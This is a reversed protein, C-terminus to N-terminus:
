PSPYSKHPSSDLLVHNTPSDDDEEAILLFFESACKHGKHYKEDCSFYLGNGCHVRLSDESAFRLHFLKALFTAPLGIIYNALTEFDSLYDNVSNHQMLKFLTRSPDEYTSPVFRAELAQLLGSWSTLQGNCTMWQLWALVPGEM